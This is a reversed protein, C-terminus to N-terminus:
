RARVASRSSGPWTSSLSPYHRAISTFRSTLYAKIDQYIQQERDPGTRLTLPIHKLSVLKSRIDVENRSTVILKFSPPLQSWRAITDLLWERDRSQPGELGGCEDLADVILVPLRDKPIDHKSCSDFPAAILHEFLLRADAKSPDVEHDRLKKVIVSEICPYRHALDSAVCRWLAAATKQTANDRKFFASGLRCYLTLQNMASMAIASKGTGPFGEIWLINPLEFDDIWTDIEKFVDERTGEM